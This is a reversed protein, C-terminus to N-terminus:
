FYEFEQPRDLLDPDDENCHGCRRLYSELGFFEKTKEESLGCFARADESLPKVWKIDNARGNGLYPFRRACRFCILTEVNDDQMAQAYNYLCRRDISYTALPAGRRVKTSIAENYAALIREEPAAIKPLLEAVKAIDASHCNQLHRSLEVERQGEWQCGMFACHKVPLQVAADERMAETSPELPNAGDAPLTPENRLCGALKVISTELVCRSDPSSSPDMCAEKFCGLGANNEVAAGSQFAGEADTAKRRIRRRRQNDAPPPPPPPPSEGARQAGEGTTSGSNQESKSNTNRNDVPQPPPPPCDNAGTDGNGFTSGSSRESESKNKICNHVTSEGLRCENKGERSSSAGSGAGEVPLGAPYVLDYHVGTFGNGTNNFLELRQAEAVGQADADATRGFVIALAEPDHVASDFRTYVVLKIGQPELARASPFEQLFYRVVAEGHVDSQLYARAHLEDSVNAVEGTDTRVCPWLRDDASDNLHARCASCAHQRALANAKLDGLVYGYHALLQLLSDSCCDNQGHVLGRGVRKGLGELEQRRVSDSKHQLDVNQLM